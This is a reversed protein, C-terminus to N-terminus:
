FSAVKRNFIFNIIVCLKLKALMKKAATLNIFYIECTLWQRPHWHNPTGHCALEFAMLLMTDM